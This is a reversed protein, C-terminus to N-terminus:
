SEKKWLAIVEEAVQEPTKGETWIHHPLAAYIPARAQWRERWQGALPRGSKPKLRAEITNPEADLCVVFTHHLLAARSADDMLAGGGTAVVEGARAALEHCLGHEIARFHGEGYRAFLEAITWGTRAVILEDMDVFPRQLRAALLRGVTSKGTGMFGALVLSRDEFGAMMPITSAGPSGM